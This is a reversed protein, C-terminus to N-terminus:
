LTCRYRHFYLCLRVACVNQERSKYRTDTTYEADAGIWKVRHWGATM